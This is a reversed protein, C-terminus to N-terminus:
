THARLGAAMFPVMKRIIDELEDNVGYDSAAIAQLTGAGCLTFVVSGLMFYIRWFLDAMPLDPCAKILLQRCAQFVEACSEQLYAKLREQGQSFALAVLKMSIVLNCSRGDATMQDVLLHLIGELDVTDESDQLAALMQPFNTVFPDLLRSYMAQILAEKSGFHYNVAALNVEAKSTISRLSTEAFGNSAFLQEAADLIRDATAPQSM